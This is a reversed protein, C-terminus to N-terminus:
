NGGFAPPTKAIFAAIGAAADKTDGAAAVAETEAYLQASLDREWAGRLLRRMHGYGVTPGAALRTALALAHERVEAAPVVENILGLDLAEAASVPRNLLYLEMAKRPGVLRPLHWTGGGDGSLGIGAFATVFRADDAAVVLDATFVYGLGGGAVSGHAVTVIPADIREFIRFAEHFPGTMRAFLDGYAGPEAHSTFYDIDGGVTLDPGAGSILVARVAPDAEIMRAVALTEEAVQLDIANREAPRNLTVHAVGDRVRYDIKELRGAPGLAETFLHTDTLQELRSIRGEHVTIVHVFAADLPAESRRATGVYRGAVFLRGDDLLHFETPQAVVAFARGIRWWVQERMAESGHQEGTAAVVLGDAARGVFDATLVEDLAAADGVALAAYLRTAVSRAEDLLVLSM